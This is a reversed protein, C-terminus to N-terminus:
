PKPSKASTRKKRPTAAKRSGPAKQRTSPLSSSSQSKKELFLSRKAALQDIADSIHPAGKLFERVNEETCPEDFSWDKVLAVQMRLTSERAMQRREAIDEVQAAKLADRRGEAEAERFADSDVSRVIIFENSEKGNLALLPIKIGENGADRSNFDNFSAM